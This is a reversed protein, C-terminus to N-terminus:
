CFICKLGSLLFFTINAKNPAALDLLGLNLGLLSSAEAVGDEMDRWCPLQARIRSLHMCVCAYAVHTYCIYM